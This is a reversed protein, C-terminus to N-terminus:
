RGKHDGYYGSSQCKLESGRTIVPRDILRPSQAFHLKNCGHIPFTYNLAFVYKLNFKSHLSIDEAHMIGVRGLGFLAVNIMM